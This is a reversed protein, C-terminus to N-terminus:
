FFREGVVVEDDAQLPESLALGHLEKSNRFLKIKKESGLNSLGGGRALAKRLTIGKDLRYVGPSKIAGSISFHPATALFIKDGPYVLPDDEVGGTAIAHIDLVMVQGNPRRLTLTDAGSEKTGGVRALVESVHYTRDLPVTGPQGVEGLVTVYRSSNTAVVVNVAPDKYYGGAQLRDRVLDRVQLPTYNAVTLTHLLPLTVTGDAQVAVHAKFKDDGAIGIDLVDGQGIPYTDAATADAIVPTTDAIVPLTAGQAMAAPSIMVPHLLITGLILATRHISPFMM